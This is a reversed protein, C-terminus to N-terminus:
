NLRKISSIIGQRNITTRSDGKPWCWQKGTVYSVAVCQNSNMCRRECEDLSINRIGNALLDGGLIDLNAAREMSFAPPTPTIPQPTTAAPPLPPSRFFNQMCGDVMERIKPDYVSGQFGYSMSYDQNFVKIGASSNGALIAANAPTVIYSLITNGDGHKIFKYEHITLDQGSSHFLPPGTFANPPEQLFAMGHAGYKGCSFTMVNRGVLADQEVRLYIMGDLNKYEVITESVGQSVVGTELLREPTVWTISGGSASVIDSFFGPDVDRSKIYELIIASLDQSTSMAESASMEEQSYFKHVGLKEGPTIYRYKAGLYAYVCASACFATNSEGINAVTKEPRSAIM